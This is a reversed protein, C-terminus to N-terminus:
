VRALVITILQRIAFALKHNISMFAFLNLGLVAAQISLLHLKTGPKKIMATFEHLIFHVIVALFVILISNGLIIDSGNVNADCKCHTPYFVIGIPASSSRSVQFCNM